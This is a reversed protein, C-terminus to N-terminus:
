INFNKIIKIVKEHILPITALIGKNKELKKGHSFDLRKGTIDTVIGGAEEVILCGAAHDWIKEKYDPSKPNPIRLYIEANGSGVIGYKVQSDMQVPPEMIDLLGAIKSQLEQNGHASEYSEVFKMKKNDTECSINIKRGAGTEVNIVGSGKGKVAYFIFGSFSKEDTLKLNPCGSIGLKVEGKVILALAIAYQEGRLFGKTGDIPDLTWFVTNNPEGNGLDISEPISKGALQRNLEKDNKVYFEIQELIRINEEKRLEGSDEEAVIPVEPFKEKLASCIIAQSTFDAITVPSKDSKDIKDDATLDNQIIRSIRMADAVAAIGAELEKEYM